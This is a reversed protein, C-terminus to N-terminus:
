IKNNLAKKYTPTKQTHTQEHGMEAEDETDQDSRPVHEPPPVQDSRPVQPSILFKADNEIQKNYAEDEHKHAYNV